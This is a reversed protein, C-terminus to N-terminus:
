PQRLVQVVGLLNKAEFDDPEVELARKLQVEAEELRNKGQLFNAYANKPKARKPERLVGQILRSEEDSTAELARKPLCMGPHVGKVTFTSVDQARDKVAAALKKAEGKKSSCISLVVLWKGKPAGALSDPEMLKPLENAFGIVKAFLKIDVLETIRSHADAESGVALAVAQFTEAARAPLAPATLVVAFVLTRYM